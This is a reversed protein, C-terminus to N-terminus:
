LRRPVASSPPHSPQVKGSTYHVSEVSVFGLTACSIGCVLALALTPALHRVASLIGTRTAVARLPTMCLTLPAATGLLGLGAEIAPATTGGSASTLVGLLGCTIGNLAVITSRNRERRGVFWALAAGVASGLTFFLPGM